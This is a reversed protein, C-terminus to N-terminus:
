RFGQHIGRETAFRGQPLVAYSSPLTIQKQNWNYTQVEQGHRCTYNESFDMVMVLDGSGMNNANDRFEEYQWSPINQM